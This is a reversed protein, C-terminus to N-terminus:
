DNRNYENIFVGKELLTNLLNIENKLINKIPEKISGKLYNTKEIPIKGKILLTPPEIGLRTNPESYGTFVGTPQYPVKIGIPFIDKYINYDGNSIFLTTTNTVVEYSISGTITKNRIDEYNLSINNNFPLRIIVSSVDTIEPVEFKFIDITVVGYKFTNTKIPTTIHGTVISSELLVDENFKLPYSYTNIIIDNPVVGVKRIEDITDTNIYYTTFVNETVTDTPSDGGSASVSIDIIKNITGAPNGFEDEDDYYLNIISYEDAGYLLSNSWGGKYYFRVILKNEDFGGMLCILYEKKKDKCEYILTKTLDLGSLQFDGKDYEIDNFIIEKESPIFDSYNIEFTELDTFVEDSNNFTFYGVDDINFKKGENTSIVLEKKNVEKPPENEDAKVTIIEGSRKQWSLDIYCGDSKLINIYKVVDM